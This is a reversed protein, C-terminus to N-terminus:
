VESLLIAQKKIENEAKGILYTPIYGDNFDIFSHFEIQYGKYLETYLPGKDPHRGKFLIYVDIDSDIRPQGYVRSGFYRIETVKFKKYKEVIWKTLEAYLLETGIFTNNM